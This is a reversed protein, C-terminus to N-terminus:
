DNEIAFGFKLTLPLQKQYSLFCKNFSRKLLQINPSWKLTEEVNQTLSINLNNSQNSKVQICEDINSIPCKKHLMQAVFDYKQFLLFYLVFLRASPCVSLCISVGCVPSMLLTEDGTILYLTRLVKKGASKTASGERHHQSHIYQHLTILGKQTSLISWNM